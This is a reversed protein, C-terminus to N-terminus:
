RDQGFLEDLAEEAAIEVVQDLADELAPELYPREPYRLEDSLAMKKWLDDNTEHHRAWFFARQRTTVARRDGFEHTAAWDVRSGYRLKAGTRTPSLDFIGEPASRVSSATPATRAGTLSRALTGRQRRLSGPGTQTNPNVTGRGVFGGGGRMYKTTAFSAIVAVGKSLTRRAVAQGDFDGILDSPRTPM